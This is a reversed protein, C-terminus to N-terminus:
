EKYCGGGDSKAKSQIVKGPTHSVSDSKPRLRSSAMAHDEQGAYVCASMWFTVMYGKVNVYVRLSLCVSFRNDALQVTQFPSATATSLSSNRNCASPSFTCNRSDSSSVVTTYFRTTSFRPLSYLALIVIITMTAATTYDLCLIYLRTITFYRLQSEGALKATGM